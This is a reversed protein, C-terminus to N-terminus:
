PLAPPENLLEPCERGVRGSIAQVRLTNGRTHIQLVNGAPDRWSRALVRKGEATSDTQVGYRRRVETLLELLQADFQEENQFLRTASFVQLAELSDAILTAAKYESWRTGERAADLHYARYGRACSDEGVLVSWQSRGLLNKVCIGFPYPYGTVPVSTYRPKKEKSCGVALFLFLGLVLFAASTSFHKM